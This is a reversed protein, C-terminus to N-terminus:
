FIHLSFLLLSVVNTTLGPAHLLGRITRRTPRTGRVTNTKKLDALNPTTARCNRDIGDCELWRMVPIQGKGYAIGRHELAFEYRHCHNDRNIPVTCKRYITSHYYNNLHFSYIKASSGERAGIKKECYNCKMEGQQGINVNRVKNLPM